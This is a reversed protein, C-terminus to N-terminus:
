SLSVDHEFLSPRANEFTNKLILDYVIQATVIGAREKWSVILMRPCPMIGLSIRTGIYM